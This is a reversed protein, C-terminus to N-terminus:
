IKNVEPSFTTAELVVSEVCAYLELYPAFFNWFASINKKNSCSFMHQQYENSAGWLSCTVIWDCAFM